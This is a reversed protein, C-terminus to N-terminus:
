RRQSLWYRESELLTDFYRDMETLQSWTILGRNYQERLSMNSRPGSKTQTGTKLWNFFSGQRPYTERAAAGWSQFFSQMLYRGERSLDNRHDWYSYGSNTIEAFTRTMASYAMWSRETSDPFGSYYLHSLERILLAAVLADSGRRMIDQSLAVVPVGGRWTLKADYNAAPDSDILFELRNHQGYVREYMELGVPSRSLLQVASALRRSESSDAQRFGIRGGDLSEGLSSFPSDNPAGLKMADFAQRSANAQDANPAALAAAASDLSAKAMPADAAAPAAVAAPLPLASPTLTLAPASLASPAATLNPTTLGFSPTLSMAPALLTPRPLAGLPLVAAPAVSRPAAIHRMASASTAGLVLSVAIITKM